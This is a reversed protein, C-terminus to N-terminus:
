GVMQYFCYRIKDDKGYLKYPKLQEVSTVGDRIYLKNM